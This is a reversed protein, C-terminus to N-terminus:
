VREGRCEFFQVRDRLKLRSGLQTPEQLRPEGLRELKHPPIPRVSRASSRALSHLPSNRWNGTGVRDQDVIQSLYKRCINGTKPPQVAGSMLSPIAAVGVSRCSRERRRIGSHTWVAYERSGVFNAIKYEAKWTVEGGWKTELAHDPVIRTDEVIGKALPWSANQSSGRHLFVFLAAVLVWAIVVLATSRM